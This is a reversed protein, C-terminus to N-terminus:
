SRPSCPRVGAAPQPGRAAALVSDGLAADRGPGHGPAPRGPVAGIAPQRRAGGGAAAGGPQAAGPDGRDGYGAWCWRGRGSTMGRVLLCTAAVAFLTAVAYPRADQAYWTTLPLGAVLLGALLGTLRPAPQGAAQGVRRGLTATLARCVSAALSPLRLATASAGLVTVVVHAVLYYLGHVADQHRLLGVIARDVAAGGGPHLGRRAVTVGRRAALRRGGARGPGPVVAVLWAMLLQRHSARSLASRRLEGAIASFWRSSDGPGSGDQTTDSDQLARGSSAATSGAASRSLGGTTRDTM